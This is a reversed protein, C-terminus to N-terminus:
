TCKGLGHELHYEGHRYEDGCGSCIHRAYDCATCYYRGCSPCDSFVSAADFEAAFNRHGCSFDSM